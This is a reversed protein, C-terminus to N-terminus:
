VKPIAIELIKGSRIKTVNKSRKCAAAAHHLGLEELKRTNSRVNEDRSLEYESKQSKAGGKIRGAGGRAARRSAGGQAAGRGRATGHGHGGDQSNPQAIVDLAPMPPPRPTPAINQGNPTPASMPTPGATTRGALASGAPTPAAHDDIVTLAGAPRVSQQHQFRISTDVFIYKSSSLNGSHAERDTSSWEYNGIETSKGKTVVMPTGVVECGMAVRAADQCTKPAIVLDRARMDENAKDDDDANVGFPEPYTPFQKDTLVHLLNDYKEKDADMKEKARACLDIQQVEMPYRFYEQCLSAQPTSVRCALM